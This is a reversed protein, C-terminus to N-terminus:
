YNDKKRILLKIHMNFDKRNVYCVSLVCVNAFNYPRLQFYLQKIVKQLYLKIPNMPLRSLKALFGLIVSRIMSM